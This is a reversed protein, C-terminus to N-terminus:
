DFIWTIVEEALSWGVQFGSISFRAIVAVLIVPSVVILLLIFAMDKANM